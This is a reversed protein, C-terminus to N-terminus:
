KWNIKRLDSPYTLIESSILKHGPPSITNQLQPHVHVKKSPPPAIWRFTYGKHAEWFVNLFLDPFRVNKKLWLNQSKRLNEPNQAKFRELIDMNLYIEGFYWNKILYFNIFLYM